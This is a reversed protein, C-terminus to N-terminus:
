SVTYLTAPESDLVFMLLKRHVEDTKANLAIAQSALALQMESVFLISFVTTKKSRDPQGPSSM